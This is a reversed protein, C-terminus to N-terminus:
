AHSSPRLGSGGVEKGSSANSHARFRGSGLRRHDPRGGQSLIGSGELSKGGNGGGEEWEGLAEVMEDFKRQTGVVRAGIVSLADHNRRVAKLNGGMVREVSGELGKVMEELRPLDFDSIGMIRTGSDHMASDITELSSDVSSLLKSNGELVLSKIQAGTELVARDVRSIAASNIRVAPTITTLESTLATLATTTSTTNSLLNSNITDLTTTHSQLLNHTKTAEQSSQSLTTDLAQLSTQLQSIGNSTLDSARVVKGDLESILTDHRKSFRSLDNLAASISTLAKGTQSGAVELKSLDIAQIDQSLKPLHETQLGFVDAGIGVVATNVDSIRTNTNEIAQGNAQVLGDVAKVDNRLATTSTALSDEVRKLDAALGDSERKRSVEHESVTAQVAQISKSITDESDKIKGGVVNINDHVAALLSSTNKLATEKLTGIENLILSTKADDKVAQISHQVNEISTTYSTMTEQIVRTMDLIKPSLSTSHQDEVLSRLNVISELVPATAAVAKLSELSAMVTSMSSFTNEGADIISKLQPQLEAQAALASDKVGQVLDKIDALGKMTGVFGSAINAEVVLNKLTQVGEILATGQDVATSSHKEVLAKNSRVEELMESVAGQVKANEAVIHNGLAGDAELLSKVAKLEDRVTDANSDTRDRSEVMRESLSSISERTSVGELMSSHKELIELVSSIQAQLGQVHQQKAVSDQLSGIVAAHAEALSILREQGSHVKSSNAGIESLSTSHDQNLKLIEELAKGHSANSDKATDLAASISEFCTRSEKGAAGLSEFGDELAKTHADNFAKAEAFWAAHEAHSTNSKQVEALISADKHRIESMTSGHMEQVSKQIEALGGNLTSSAAAQTSKAAKLASLVDSIGTSNKLEALDSGQSTVKSDLDRINRDLTSLTDNGIGIRSKIDESGSSISGLTSSTETQFASLTLSTSELTTSQSSLAEQTAATIDFIKDIAHSLSQVENSTATRTDELSSLVSDLKISGPLLSVKENIGKLSEDHSSFGGGINAQMEVINSKLEKLAESHSSLAEQTSAMIDFIKTVTNSFSENEKSTATKTDELSVLISDIEASGPLLSIRGKIADLSDDQAAFGGDINARMESITSRLEDLTQSHSTLPTTDLLQLHGEIRIMGSALDGLRTSHSALASTDLSSVHKQVAGVGDIIDVMKSELLALKETHSQIVEDDSVEEKVAEVLYGLKAVNSAVADLRANNASLLKSDLSALTGQTELETKLSSMTREIADLKRPYSELPSTDLSSVKVHVANIDRRLSTEMVDLKSVSKSMMGIKELLDGNTLSDEGNKAALTTELASIKDQTKRIAKSLDEGLGVVRRQQGDIKGGVERESEWLRDSLTANRDQLENSIEGFRIASRLDANVVKDELAKLRGDFGQLQNELSEMREDFTELLGTQGAALKELEKDHNPIKIATMHDIVPQFLLPLEDLRTQLTSELNLNALKLQNLKEQQKSLSPEIMSAVADRWVNSTFATLVAAEIVKPLAHNNYETWSDVATTPRSESAPPDTLTSTGSHSRHREKWRKVM